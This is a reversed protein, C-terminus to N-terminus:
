GGGGKLLAPMEPQLQWGGTGRRLTVESVSCPSNEGDQDCEGAVIRLVATQDGRSVVQVQRLPVVPHGRVGRLFLDLPDGQKGVAKALRRGVRRFTELDEAPLFSVARDWDGEVVAQHFARYTGEPTNLDPGSCTATATALLITLILDLRRM